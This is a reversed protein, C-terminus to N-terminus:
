NSIAIGVATTCALSLLALVFITIAFAFVDNDETVRAVILSTVMIFVEILALIWVLM